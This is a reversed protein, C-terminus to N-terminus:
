FKYNVNIIIIIIMIYQENCITTYETFCSIELCILSTQRWQEDQLSMGSLGDYGKVM